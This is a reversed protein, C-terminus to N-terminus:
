HLLIHCLKDEKEKRNFHSLSIDMQETKLLSEEDVICYFGISYRVLDDDLDLSQLIEM